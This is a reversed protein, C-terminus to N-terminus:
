ILYKSTAKGSITKESGTVLTFINIYEVQVSVEIIDGKNAIFRNDEIRIIPTHLAVLRMLNADMIVKNVRSIVIPNDSHLNPVTSAVRAGERCASDLTHKIVGIRVLDVIGYLIIVLVLLVLILEVIAQGRYANHIKMHFNM